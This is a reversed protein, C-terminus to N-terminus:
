GQAIIEVAKYFQTRDLPDPTLGAAVIVNRISETLWYYWFAGPNTPDFQSLAINGQVYGFDGPYPIPTVVSSVNSEYFRDM